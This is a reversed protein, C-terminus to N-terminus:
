PNIKGRLVFGNIVAEHTSVQIKMYPREYSRTAFNGSLEMNIFKKFKIEFTMKNTMLDTVTIVGSIISRKKTAWELIMKYDSPLALTLNLLLQNPAYSHDIRRSISDAYEQVITYDFGQVVFSKTEKTLTDTLKLDIRRTQEEQSYATSIFSLGTFLTIALLKICNM